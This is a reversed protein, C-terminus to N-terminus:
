KNKRKQKKNKQTQKTKIVFSKTPPICEYYTEMEKNWEEGLIKRIFKEEGCTYLEEVIDSVITHIYEHTYTLSFLKIFKNEDKKCLKWIFEINVEIQGTCTDSMGYFPEDRYYKTQFSKGRKRKSM